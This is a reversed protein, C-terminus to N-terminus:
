SNSMLFRFTKLSTPSRDLRLTESDQARMPGWPESWVRSTRRLCRSPCLINSTNFKVKALQINLSPFTTPAWVWWLTISSSPVSITPQFTLPRWRNLYRLWLAVNMQHFVFSKSIWSGFSECAWQSATVNVATQPIKMPLNWLLDFCKGMYIRWVSWGVAAQDSLSKQTVWEVSYYQCCVISRKKCM